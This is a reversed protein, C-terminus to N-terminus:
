DDAPFVQGWEDAALVDRLEFRLDLLDQFFRARHADMTDIHERELADLDASHSTVRDVYDGLQKIARELHECLALFFIVAIVGAIYGPAGAMLCVLRGRPTLTGGM